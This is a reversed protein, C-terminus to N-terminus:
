EYATSTAAIDRDTIVTTNAGPKFVHGSYRKLSLRSPTIDLVWTVAGAKLTLPTAITIM